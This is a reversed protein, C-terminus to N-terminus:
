AVIQIISMNTTLPLVLKKFLLVTLLLTTVLNSTTSFKPVTKWTWQCIQPFQSTRSQKFNVSYFKQDKISIDVIFKSYHKMTTKFLKLSLILWKTLYSQDDTSDFHFKDM